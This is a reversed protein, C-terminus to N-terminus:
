LFLPSLSLSLSLSLLSLSCMFIYYFTMYKYNDYILLFMSKYRTVMAGNMDVPEGFTVMLSRNSTVHLCVNSPPGPIGTCMLLFYYIVDDNCLM